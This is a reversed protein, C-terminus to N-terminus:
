YEIKTLNTPWNIEILEYDNQLAGPGIATVNDPM